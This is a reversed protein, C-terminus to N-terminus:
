EGEFPYSRTRRLHHIVADPKYHIFMRWLYKILPESFFAKRKKVNNEKFIEFCSLRIEEFFVELEECFQRTYRRKKAITPFIILMMMTLSRTDMFVRPLELLHMFKWIQKKMRDATWYHCGKSLGQVDLLKRLFNRFKRLLPKYLADKKIRRCLQKADDESDTM